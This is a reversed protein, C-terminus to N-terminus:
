VRDGEVRPHSEGADVTEALVGGNTQKWTCLRESFNNKARNGFARLRTQAHIRSPKLLLLANRRAGKERIWYLKLHRINAPILWTAMFKLAFFGHTHEGATKRERLQAPDEYEQYESADSEAFDIM